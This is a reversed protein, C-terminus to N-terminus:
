RGGRLRREIVRRAALEIVRRWAPPLGRGATPAIPRAEMRSTGGSFFGAYAVGGASVILRPGRVLVRAHGALNGSKRGPANGAQPRRWAEGYPSRGATFEGDLLGQLGGAAERGVQLRTEGSALSTLGAYLSGLASTSAEVRIRM